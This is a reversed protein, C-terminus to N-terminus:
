TSLPQQADKDHAMNFGHLTVPRCGEPSAIPDFSLYVGGRGLRSMCKFYLAHNTKQGHDVQLLLGKWKWTVDPLGARGRGVALKYPLPDNADLTSNLVNVHLIYTENTYQFLQGNNVYFLPANYQRPMSSITMNGTSGRPWPTTLYYTTDYDLGGAVLSSAGTVLSDISGRTGFSQWTPIAHVLSLSVLGMLVLPLMM